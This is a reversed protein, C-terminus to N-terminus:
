SIIQGAFRVRGLADHCLPDLTNSNGTLQIIRYYAQIDIDKLIEEERRRRCVM